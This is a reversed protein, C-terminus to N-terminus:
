FGNKSITFSGINYQYNQLLEFKEGREGNERGFGWDWHERKFLPSPLESARAGNECSTGM